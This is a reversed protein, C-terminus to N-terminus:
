QRKAVHINEKEDKPPEPSPSCFTTVPGSSPRGRLPRCCEWTSAVFAAYVLRLISLFILGPLVFLTGALIGGRTKHLLWGIYV